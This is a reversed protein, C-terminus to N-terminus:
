PSTASSPQSKNHIPRRKKFHRYDMITFYEAEKAEDIKNPTGKKAHFEKTEVNGPSAVDQKNFLPKYVVDKKGSDKVMIAEENIKLKRPLLSPVQFEVVKDGQENVQHSTCSNAMFSICISLNYIIIITYLKM